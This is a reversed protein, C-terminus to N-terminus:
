SKQDTPKKQTLDAIFHLGIDNEDRWIIRAKKIRGTQILRLVVIEPLAQDSEMRVLAGTESINRIVCPLFDSKSTYLKAPRFVNERLAREARRTKMTTIPANKVEPTASSIAALRKSIADKKKAMGATRMCLGGEILHNFATQTLLNVGM